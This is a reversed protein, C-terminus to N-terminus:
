CNSGDVRQVDTIFTLQEEFFRHFGTTTQVIFERPILRARGPIVSVVTGVAEQFVTTVIKVRDGVQFMEVGSQKKLISEVPLLSLPPCKSQFFSCGSM